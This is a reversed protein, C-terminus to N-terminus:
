VALTFAGKSDPVVCRPCYSYVCSSQLAAQQAGHEEFGLGVGAYYFESIICCNNSQYSAIHTVMCSPFYRSLLRDRLRLLVFIITLECLLHLLATSLMVCQQSLMLM